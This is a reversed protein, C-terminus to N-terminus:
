EDTENDNGNDNRSPAQSIVIGRCCCRRLVTIDNTLLDYYDNQVHLVSKECISKIDEAYRRSIVLNSTKVVVQAHLHSDKM